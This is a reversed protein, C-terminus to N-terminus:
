IFSRQKQQRDFLNDIFYVREQLKMAQREQLQVKLGKGVVACRLKTELERLEPTNFRVMQRKTEDRHILCNHRDINQALKEDREQKRLRDAIQKSASPLGDREERDQREEYLLRDLLKLKSSEDLTKIQRVMAEKMGAEKLDEIRAELKTPPKLM